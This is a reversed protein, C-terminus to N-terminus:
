KSKKTIVISTVEGDALRTVIQAMSPLEDAQRVAKGKYTTVSYGRRLTNQPSLANVVGQLAEVRRTQQRLAQVPSIKITNQLVNLYTDAASLKSAGAQRVSSMMSELSRNAAIVRNKAIHPLTSAINSLVAKAGTLRQQALAPLSVEIYSVQKLAEGYQVRAEDAVQRALSTVRDLLQQASNILWEAAATPTKVRTHAIDDLVTRDREHGIGVIIPLSFTAVTRALELNDFGNLDSTSGGGRIIVVCDWLDITMEIRQLADIVSAATREGQMVAEFLHCYFKFGQTNSQLQNVFDGYGAAGAASIVAIRQPALSMEQEKNLNIVGERTLTQIIERRIREMDGLTYSPDIDVINFSVGYQEHYAVSGYVMVKLGSKLTQGTAREFKPAVHALNSRWINARLRAVTLGEDDKEILEMYAHGRISFDSLEAVVWRATLNPNFRIANGLEQALQRLTIPPLAM